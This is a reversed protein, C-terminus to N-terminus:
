KTKCSRDVRAQRTEVPVMKRQQSMVVIVKWNSSVENKAM